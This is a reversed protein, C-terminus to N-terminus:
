RVFQDIPMSKYGVLQDLVLSKVNAGRPLAFVLDGPRLFSSSGATVQFMAPLDTVLGLVAVEVNGGVGLRLPNVGVAPGVVHMWGNSGGPNLQLPGGGVGQLPQFLNFQYNVQVNYNNFLMGATGQSVYNPRVLSRAPGDFVDVHDTRMTNSAQDLGTAEILSAGTLRDPTTPWRLVFLNIADTSIPFQQGERNQIVIWKPTVTIVEAWDGSPSFGGPGIAGANDQFAAVQSTFLLSSAILSLQLITSRGNACGLM